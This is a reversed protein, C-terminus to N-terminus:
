ESQQVTTLVLDLWTEPNLTLRIRVPLHQLGPAFWIEASVTGRPNPLPRPKLHYAELPGLGTAITDIAVVDYLWDDVGGPRGLTVPVVAGVKLPLRGTSFAHSLHVFQSATDQLHPARNLTSGNDLTVLQDGFRVGRKKNRREEEYVEPWLRQPTIRGQSTMRVDIILGVNVHVHTQYRQADRQWQVRAQGLLDGRFHGKLDYNLRTSRPWTSLWASPDSHAAETSALTHGRVSDSTVTADPQLKPLPPNTDADGPLPAPSPTFAQPSTASVPQSTTGDLTGPMLSDTTPPPTAAESSTQAASPQKPIDRTAKKPGHAPTQAPTQVPVEVLVTRAQIVQGITSTAPLDTHSHPLGTPLGDTTKPNLSQNFEPEAMHQLLGKGSTQRVVWELLLLHVVLVVWFLWRPVSAALHHHTSARAGHADAQQPHADPVRATHGVAQPSEPRQQQGALRPPVM